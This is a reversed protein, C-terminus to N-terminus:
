TQWVQLQSVTQVTKWDAVGANKAVIKAALKGETVRCNYGEWPRFAKPAYILSHAVVFAVGAPLTVPTAKLPSFQIVQAKGAQGLCSITQDM